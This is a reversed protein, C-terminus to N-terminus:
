EVFTKISFTLQKQSPDNTEVYVSRSIDGKVPMIKPRYILSLTASQGPDVTGNWTSKQHMSVEPSKVGNITVVGATCGCSSSINFLQLPKTGTNELTFDVTKEDNVSMTGIDQFISDTKVSPKDTETPQYQVIRGSGQAKKQEGVAVFGILVLVLVTFGCIIWLITKNSNQHKM